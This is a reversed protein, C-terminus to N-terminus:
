GHRAEWEERTLVYFHTMPNVDSPWPGTVQSFRHTFGCKQIVRRSKENGEFHACWCRPAATEEFIYRQLERVAEPILGRGWFPRAIWYGIEPEGKAEGSDCPFVGVSGVGEDGLAKVTVAFTGDASLVNRIVNRSDEVDVHPKWGAAPGVAPDSAWRYLTEADDERWPRLLLRPTELTM